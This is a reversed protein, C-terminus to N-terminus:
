IYDHKIKYGLRIASLSDPQGNVRVPDKKRLLKRLFQRAQEYTKFGKAVTIGNRVVKYRVRYLM